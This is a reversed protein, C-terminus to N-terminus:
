QDRPPMQDCLYKYLYKHLYKRSCVYNDAFIQRCSRTPLFRDALVQILVQALLLALVRLQVCTITPLYKDALVRWLYKDVGRPRENVVRVAM